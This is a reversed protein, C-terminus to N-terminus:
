EPRKARVMSDPAGVAHIDKQPLTKKTPYDNTHFGSGIFKLESPSLVLEMCNYSHCDPSACSGPNGAKADNSFVLREVTHGCMECRYTYLAM